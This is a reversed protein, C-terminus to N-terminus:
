PKIPRLRKPDLSQVGLSARRLRDLLQPAFHRVHQRCLRAVHMADGDCFAEYIQSHEANSQEIGLEPISLRLYSEVSDRLTGILRCLHRRGSATFLREHFERNIESWRQFDGKRSASLQKMWGVTEAVREIAEPTRNITAVYGAQEELIMRMEFVEAIEQPGFMVVRYGYRPRFTVLGEGTLRGLAERIPHRSTGLRAALEEQRLKQDGGLEGDFILQRLQRTVTEVADMSLETEACDDALHVKRATSSEKV